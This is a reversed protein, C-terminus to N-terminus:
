PEPQESDLSHQAGRPLVLENRLAAASLLHVIEGQTTSWSARIFPAHPLDAPPATLEHPEVRQLGEVGSVVLGLPRPGKTVVIVMSISIPVEHQHLRRHLDILVLTEGRYRFVGLAWSPSDPLARWAVLPILQRIASTPLAYRSEDVNLMVLSQAELLPAPPAPRLQARLSALQRELVDLQRMM